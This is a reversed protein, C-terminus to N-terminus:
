TRSAGPGPARDQAGHGRVAPQSVRGGHHTAPLGVQVKGIDTEDVLTHVQVLSLDAMKLLTTGGSVNNTASAIVQGREVDKEIITGTIPALVNTDELQIKANDVAM